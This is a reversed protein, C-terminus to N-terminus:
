LLCALDGEYGPEVMSMNVLMLGQRSLTNTQWWFGVMDNPFKVKDRTRIWVMKGPHVTLRTPGVATQFEVPDTDDGAIFGRGPRFSYSCESICATDGGPVLNGAAICRRIELDSLVTV